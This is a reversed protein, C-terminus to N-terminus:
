KFGTKKLSKKNEKAIKKRIREDDNKEEEQEAYFIEQEIDQKLLVGRTQTSCRKQQCYEFCINFENEQEPCVIRVDIENTIPNWHSYVTNCGPIETEEEAQIACKLVEINEVSLNLDDEVNEDELDDNEDSYNAAEGPDRYNIYLFYLLGLIMLVHYRNLMKDPVSM